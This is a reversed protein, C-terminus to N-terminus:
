YEPMDQHPYLVEIRCRWEVDEDDESEARAIPVVNPTLLEALAPDKRRRLGIYQWSSDGDIKLLAVIYPHEVPLTRNMESVVFRKAKALVEGDLEDLRGLEYHSCVEYFILNLQNGCYWSFEDMTGNALDGASKEMDELFAPLINARLQEIIDEAKIPM